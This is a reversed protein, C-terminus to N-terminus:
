QQAAFFADTATGTISVQDGLTTPGSGCSVSQGAALVVSAAKTASGIAGFYVWMTNSGNNQVSCGKRTTSAAFVSQYTNTVAITGSANTSTVVTPIQAGQLLRGSSDCQLIILGQDPLTPTTAKYQCDVSYANSAWLFCAAALIPRLLRM